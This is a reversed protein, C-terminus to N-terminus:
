QKHFLAHHLSVTSVAITSPRPVEALPSSPEVGFSGLLDSCSFFVLILSLWLRELALLCSCRRSRSLRRASHWM